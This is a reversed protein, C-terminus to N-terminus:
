ETLATRASPIDHPGPEITRQRPLAVEFVAGSGPANWARVRGQHLEAIKRVIALGLGTGGATGSTPSSQVFPEFISDIEDHPIGVGEDSVGITIESEGAASVSDAITVRVRGHPRCFKSANSLLNMLVREILHPDLEVVPDASQCDVDIAIAREDMLVRVEDVVGTALRHLDTPVPRVVVERSGLRALDLLADVFQILRRASNRIREFYGQGKEFAGATLRTRGLEAFSAIAHIPTRMEHSVNSIIQDKVRSAAEAAEKAISLERTREAVLRNLATTDTGFLFIGRQTGQDIDPLYSIRVHRTRGAADVFPGEFLSPEGRMARDFCAASAAFLASGLVEEPRRGPLAAADIGFWDRHTSNGFLCHGDNGWCAIVAPVNALVTELRHLTVQLREREASLAASLRKEETIDRLVSLTAVPADEEDRDFIGSQAVDIIEGAPTVYQLELDTFRGQARLEPAIVQDLRLRSAPTLFDALPKGILAELPQGMRQAWAQSAGVLRGRLDVSIMMAPTQQYLIRFHAEREALRRVQIEARELAVALLSPSILTLALPLYFLLESFDGGSAPPGFRGFAILGGVVLSCLFNGLAANAIGGSVAVGLLAFAVISFPFPVRGPLLFALALAIVLTALAKTHLVDRALSRWGRALVYIGLPLLSTVGIASGLFWAFWIKEFSAHGVLSMVSSSVLAGLLAPVVGSVFLASGFLRVDGVCKEAVFYRRFLHASLGIEVLNAFPSMWTIPGNGRMILNAVFVALWLSAMLGPWERKPRAMLTVAGFANAYWFLAISAPRATVYLVYLALGLYGTFAFALWRPAAPHKM